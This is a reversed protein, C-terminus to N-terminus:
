KKAAFLTSIILTYVVVSTIISYHDIIRSFIRKRKEDSFGIFPTKSCIFYLTFHCVNFIPSLSPLSFSIIDYIM